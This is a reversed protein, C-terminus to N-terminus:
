TTSYQHLPLDFHNMLHFANDVVLQPDDADMAPDDAAQLISKIAEVMYEATVVQAVTDQEADTLKVVPGDHADEEQLNQPEL